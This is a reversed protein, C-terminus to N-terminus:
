NIPPQPDSPVSAGPVIISLSREDRNRPPKVPYRGSLLSGVGIVPSNPITELSGRYRGGRERERRGGRVGWSEEKEGREARSWRAAGLRWLDRGYVM